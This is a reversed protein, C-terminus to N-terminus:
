PISPLRTLLVGFINGPRGRRLPESVFHEFDEIDKASGIVLPCRQLITTAQIEPITKTPACEYLLRAEGGPAFPGASLYSGGEVLSRHFDAVLAGTYRLSYPRHTAQDEVTVRAHM